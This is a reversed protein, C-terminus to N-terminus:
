RFFVANKKKEEIYLRWNHPALRKLLPLFHSRLHGLLMKSCSPRKPSSFNEFFQIGNKKEIVRRYTANLFFSSVKNSVGDRAIYKHGLITHVLYEADMVPRDGVIADRM